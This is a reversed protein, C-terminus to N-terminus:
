KATPTKWFFILYKIILMLKLTRTWRSSRV